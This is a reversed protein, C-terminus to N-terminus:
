GGARLRALQEDIRAAAVTLASGGVSADGRDALADRSDLVAATGQNLATAVQDRDHQDGTSGITVSSLKGQADGIERSMDALATEAVARTSLGRRYLDLVQVSTQIASHASALIQQLDDVTGARGGCGTGGLLVATV